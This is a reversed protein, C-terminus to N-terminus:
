IGCKKRIYERSDALDKLPDQLHTDHEVLIWDNYGRKKLINIVEANLDGMEGCGLGCFRLRDWWNDADKDKYVFDKVHLSIIRESYKEVIEIVNGGAGALHGTDFVMGADPCNVLFRELEEQSEVRSGLHNHLVAKIGYRACAEVQYNVRRYYEEDNGADLDIWIYKKGLAATWKIAHEINPALCTAFDMNRRKLEAAKELADDASIPQLRELGDYGIKKIDSWRDAYSYCSGYWVNMGYDAIGVKM